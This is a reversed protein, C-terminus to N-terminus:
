DREREIEGSELLGKAVSLMKQQASEIDKIKVKTQKEFKEDFRNKVRPSMAQTIKKVMKEDQDKFAVLIDDLTLQHIIKFLNDVGLKMMEEFIFMADAISYALQPDLARINYVIENSKDGMTNLAFAIKKAGGLCYKEQDQKIAINFIQKLSIEINKVVDEDVEKITAINMSIKLKEYDDLHMLVKSIYEPSMASLILSVININEDKLTDIFVKPDIEKLFEFPQKSNM